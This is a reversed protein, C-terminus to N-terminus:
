AGRSEQIKTKLCAASAASKIVAQFNLKKHRTGQLHAPSTVLHSVCLNQLALREERVTGMLPAGVM